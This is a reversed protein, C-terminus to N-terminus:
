KVTYTGTGMLTITKGDSTTYTTWTGGTVLPYELKIIYAVPAGLEDPEADTVALDRATSSGPNRKVVIGVGPIPNSSPVHKADCGIVHTSAYLVLAKDNTLTITDCTGDIQVVHVQQKRAQASTAALLSLLTITLLKKMTVGSLNLACM